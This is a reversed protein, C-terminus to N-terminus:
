GIVVYCVRIGKGEEQTGLQQLVLGMREWQPWVLYGLYPFPIWLWTVSDSVSGEGTKLSGLHLSLQVNAM